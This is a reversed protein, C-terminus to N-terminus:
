SDKHRRLSNDLIEVLEVSVLAVKFNSSYMSTTKMNFNMSSMKPYVQPNKHLWM